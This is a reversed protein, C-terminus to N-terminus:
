WARARNAWFVARVQIAYPAYRFRCREGSGGVSEVFLRRWTRSNRGKGTAVTHESCRPRCVTSTELTVLTQDVRVGSSQEVPRHGGNGPGTIEAVLACHSYWPSARSVSWVGYDSRANRDGRRRHSYRHSIQITYIATARREGAGDYCNRGLIYKGCAAMSSQSRGPLEVKCIQIQFTQVIACIRVVAVCSDRCSCVEAVDEVVWYDNAVLVKCPRCDPRRILRLKQYWM